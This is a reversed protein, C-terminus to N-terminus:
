RLHSRIDDWSLKCLFSSLVVLNGSNKWSDWANSVAGRASSRLESENEHAVVIKREGKDAGYIWDILISNIAKDGFSYGSVVLSEHDQLRRRFECFLPGFIPGTYREEKNFRGILLLPREDVVDWERARVGADESLRGLWEEWSDNRTSRRWRFWKLSGHLKLLTCRADRASLTSLTLVHRGDGSPKTGDYLRQGTNRFAEEILCDHNLTFVDVRKV